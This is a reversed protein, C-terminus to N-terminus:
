RLVEFLSAIWLVQFTLAFVAFAVQYRESQWMLGLLAGLILLGQRAPYFWSDYYYTVYYAKGKLVTDIVDVVLLILLLVYFANRRKRFYDRFGQYEDMRDPFLVASLAVFMGAYFLLFFYIAFYWNTRRTLAFEFWWFHIIFLLLFLVWGIHPLYLQERGPHQVFRTLGTILRSVSLGMVMGIIIRVHTFVEGSPFTHPLETM